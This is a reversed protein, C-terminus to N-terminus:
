DQSLKLALKWREARRTRSAASCKVGVPQSLQGYSDTSVELGGVLLFHTQVGVKALGEQCCRWATQCCTAQRRGRGENRRKSLWNLLYQESSTMTAAMFQAKAACMRSASRICTILRTLACGGHEPKGFVDIAGLINHHPVHPAATCCPHLLGHVLRLYSLWPPFRLLLWRELSAKTKLSQQATLPAM